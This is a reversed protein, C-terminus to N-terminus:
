RVLSKLFKLTLERRPTYNVFPLAKFIRFGYGKWPNRPTGVLTPDATKNSGVWMRVDFIALVGRDTATRILRGAAQQVDTLMSPYYYQDWWRDGLTQKKSLGM